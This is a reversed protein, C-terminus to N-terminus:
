PATRGDTDSDPEPRAVGFEEGPIFTVKVGTEREVQRAFERANDVDGPSFDLPLRVALVEGPKVITVYERALAKATEPTLVPAPPLWVPQYKRHEWDGSATFEDWKAKFDAVQEDTWEIQPPLLAAEIAAIRDELARLAALEPPVSPSEIPGPQM